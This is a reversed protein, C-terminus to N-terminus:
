HISSHNGWELSKEFLNLAKKPDEEVDRGQDYMFGLDFLAISNGMEISQEYFNISKELDKEGHNGNEFHYGLMDLCFSIEEKRSPDKEYKEYYGLFSKYSNEQSDSEGWGLLYSLGKAILNQDKHKLCLENSKRKDVRMKVGYFLKLMLLVEEDQETRTNM